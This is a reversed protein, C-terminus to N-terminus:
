VEFYNPLPLGLEVGLLDSDAEWSVWGNSPVNPPSNLKHAKIDKDIFVSLLLVYM